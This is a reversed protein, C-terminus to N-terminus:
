LNLCKGYHSPFIHGNNWIYYNKRIKPYCRLDYNMNRTRRTTANLYPLYVVHNELIEIKMPLLLLVMSFILIFIIYTTIPATLM